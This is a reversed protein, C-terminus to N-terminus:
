LFSMVEHCLDEYDFNHNKWYDHISRLTLGNKITVEKKHESKKLRLVSPHIYVQPPNM